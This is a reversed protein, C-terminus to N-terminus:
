RKSDISDHIHAGSKSTEDPVFLFTEIGDFLSRFAHFRGGEQFNPKIRDIYKRLAKM